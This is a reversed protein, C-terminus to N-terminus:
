ASRTRTQANFLQTVSSTVDCFLIAAEPFLRESKRILIEKVRYICFRTVNVHLHVFVLCLIFICFFMIFIDPSKKNALRAEDQETVSLFGETADSGQLWNIANV